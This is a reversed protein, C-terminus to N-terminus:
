KHTCLIEMMNARRNVREKHRRRGVPIVGGCLTQKGQREKKKKKYGIAKTNPTYQSM